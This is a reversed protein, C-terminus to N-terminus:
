DRGIWINPEKSVPLCLKKLVGMKSVWAELPELLHVKLLSSKERNAMIQKGM